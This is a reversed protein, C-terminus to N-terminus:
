RRTNNDCRRHRRNGDPKAVCLVYDSSVKSWDFTMQVRTRTADSLLRFVTKTFGADVIDSYVDPCVNIRTAITRRECLSRSWLRVINLFRVRPRVHVREARLWSVGFGFASVKAYTEDASPTRTWLSYSNNPMLANDNKRDSRWLKRPFEGASKTRRFAHRENGTQKVFSWPM